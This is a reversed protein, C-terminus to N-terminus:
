PANISVENSRIPPRLVRMRLLTGAPPANSARIKAKLERSSSFSSSKVPVQAGSQDLISIQDGNQFSSGGVTLKLIGSGKRKLLLSTIEPGTLKGAIVENSLDSPPSTNRARVALTGVTNRISPNEDMEIIRVMTPFQEDVRSVVAQGNIQIETDNRFGTGHVFVRLGSQGAAAQQVIEGNATMIASTLALVPDPDPFLFGLRESLKRGSFIYVNGANVLRTNFGDARMANAIYDVYGDGDVDAGTLRYSFEDGGDLGQAEGHAGALRFVRIGSPIDYLKVVSPLFDSSGFILKTDGADEREEGDLEFTHEPSGIFLDSRGDRNIDFSRVSDGACDLNNEGYITTIQLGSAQPDALDILKGQVAPSGYIIHVSGTRGRNDPALGQLAGVILDTRGDGNLDASHIQSGLLDRVNAGIVRTSNAPPNRLDIRAPWDQRGYLVMAEGCRNRTGGFSAGFDNHGNQIDPTVYSGSDRFISGGVVVDKIGDDNIDGLHLAAGWHEEEFSGDFRTMRVGPPPSALDIVQPLDPSGFVICGGGSHQGDARNLQDAGMVLDDFGDGNVDGIDTWIGTRGSVQAGHLIIIGPPPNEELGALDINFNFDQRGMVLVAGGCNFRTNAPGDGGSVGILADRLGDGNVDGNASVSTGLLDGSDAGILTSFRQPQAAQDVFGSDSGDSLYFNIQGNNRRTGAGASGFMGCFIVDARSDGNLDGAGVPLGIHGQNRLGGFLVLLGDQEFDATDIALEVAGQQARSSSMQQPLFILSALIFGMLTKLVRVRSKRM